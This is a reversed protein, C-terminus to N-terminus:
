FDHKSAFKTLDNLAWILAKTAPNRGQVVLQGDRTDVHEGICNMKDTHHVPSAM